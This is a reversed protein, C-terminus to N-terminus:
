PAPPFSGPMTFKSGSGMNLVVDGADPLLPVSLAAEQACKWKFSTQRACNIPPVSRILNGCAYEVVRM